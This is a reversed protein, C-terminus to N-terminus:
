RNNVQALLVDSDGLLWSVRAKWDCGLHRVKQANQSGAVLPLLNAV